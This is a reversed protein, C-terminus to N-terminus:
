LLLWLSNLADCIVVIRSSFCFNYVCLSVEFTCKLYVFKFFFNKFLKFLQIGRWWWDGSPFSQQNNAKKYAELNEREPVAPSGAQKTKEYFMREHVCREKDVFGWQGKENYPPLGLPRRNWSPLKEGLMPCPASQRYAMSFSLLAGKIQKSNPCFSWSIICFTSNRQLECESFM